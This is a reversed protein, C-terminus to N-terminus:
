TGACGSTRRSHISVPSPDPPVCAGRAGPGGSFGGGGGSSARPTGLADEHPPPNRTAGRDAHRAVVREAVAGGPAEPACVAVVATNASPRWFPRLTSAKSVALVPPTDPTQPGNGVPVHVTHRKRHASRGTFEKPPIGPAPAMDRSELGPSPSAEGVSVRGLPPATGTPYVAAPAAGPAGYRSPTAAPTGHSTGPRM